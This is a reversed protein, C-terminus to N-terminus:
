APLQLHTIPDIGAATLAAALTTVRDETFDKWEQVTAKRKVLDVYEAREQSGQAANNWGLSEGGTIQQNLVALPKSASVSEAVAQKHKAKLAAIPDGINGQVTKKVISVSQGGALNSRKALAVVAAGDAFLKVNGSNDAVPRVYQTGGITVSAIVICKGKDTVEVAGIATVEVDNLLADAIPSVPESLTLGLAAVAAHVYANNIRSM